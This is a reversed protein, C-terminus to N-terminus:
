TTLGQRLVFYFNLTVSGPGVVLGAVVFGCKFIHTDDGTLKEGTM